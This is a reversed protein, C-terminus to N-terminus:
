HALTINHSPDPLAWPSICEIMFPLVNKCHPCDQTRFNVHASRELIDSIFRLPNTFCIYDGGEPACRPHPNSTCYLVMYYLTLCLPCSWHCFVKKKLDELKLPEHACIKFHGFLSACRSRKTHIGCLVGWRSYLWPCYPVFHVTLHFLYEPLKAKTM